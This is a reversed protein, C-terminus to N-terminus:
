SSFVVTIYIAIVSNYVLNLYKLDQHIGKPLINLGFRLKETQSIFVIYYIHLLCRYIYIYLKHLFAYYIFM